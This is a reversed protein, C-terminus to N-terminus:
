RVPPLLGRSRCLELWRAAAGEGEGVDAGTLAGLSARAQRRVEASEDGTLAALRALHRRGEEVPRTRAVEAALARLAPDGSALPGALDLAPGTPPLPPRELAIGAVVGVLLLMLGVRVLAKGGSYRGQRVLLFRYVAYGAVFLALLVVPALRRWTPWNSQIARPLGLISAAAATALVALLVWRLARLAGPVAIRPAPDNAM